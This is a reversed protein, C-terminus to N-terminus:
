LVYSTITIGQEIVSSISFSTLFFLFVRDIVLNVKPYIYVRGKCLFGINAFFKEVYETCIVYINKCGTCKLTSMTSKFLPNWVAKIM